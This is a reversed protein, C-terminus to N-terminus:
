KDSKESVTLIQTNYLDSKKELEKNAEEIGYKEFLTKRGSFLDTGIGLMDGKIDVGISALITPYMDFNSYLRNVMRSQPIDKVNPAPNLILNFQTRQYDDTFNYNIFFDTDMSLHDGIMVITTNEYFPQQQVWRVFKVTESTSYAITNAYHDTYPTPAKESLFGGPRHTDATELLFHFPKGTESLRTLEDKAFEYLKDDEYGWWVKYDEPILGNAKAYRHDMIKYNGHSEFFFNLAGFNADSGLMFTQEYGQEQLIDGLAWAGPLFNDASGYHNPETPTKMPLGTTMNVLSAVSWTTGPAHIPGGFKSDTHSFVIGEYALETLEPMLNEDIFGGLEKSLYSTELSELSIFILNRKEQPFEMQATKPDVYNDDIIGSDLCYSRYLQQLQLKEIGYVIGGALCAVSLVLCIIRRALSNFITVARRNVKYVLKFNCYLLLCFVTTVLMTQFFPGEFGDIYVGAETGETPLFLTIFMEDASIDGFASKAWITGFFCASGLAVFAASLLKVFKTWGSKKPEEKEFAIQNNFVASIFLLIIGVALALFFFKVFSATKYSDTVLFHQYKFVYTLLALSILNISFINRITYHICKGVSKKECFFFIQVASIILAAITGTLIFM